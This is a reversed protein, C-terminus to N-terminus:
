ITEFLSSEIKRRYGYQDAAANLNTFDLAEKLANLRSEKEEDDEIGMIRDVEENAMRDAKALMMECEALNNDGYAGFQKRKNIFRELADYNLDVLGSRDLEETEYNLWQHWSPKAQSEIYEELTRYVKKYGYKEPYDFSLSGPEIIIPGLIPGEALVNCSINGNGGRNIEKRNLLCIEDWLKWTEMMTERTEGSLGASFFVTVPLHYRHCLKISDLLEEKSYNRGQRKRVEDCGSDPCIYMITEIGTTAVERIFDADAPALLDLTLREIGLKESRLLSLTKKWYERGGMRLDQYLGIQRIGQENLKRIDSIIKEPSRFSPTKMGLYKRYSYASAGCSTCNYACGRCITLSGRSPAADNFVSTKPDLLDYRTFEFEDTRTSPEMLPTVEIDGGFRRTLNPTGTIKGYKDLGKMFELFPKEAEGRIVADVFEYKRIIEEHFCTATLGGIVVQAGPHM